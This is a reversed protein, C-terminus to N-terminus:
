GVSVIDGCNRCSIEIKSKEVQSNYGVLYSSLMLVGLVFIIVFYHKLFDVKDVRIKTKNYLYNFVHKIFISGIVFLIIVNIWTM